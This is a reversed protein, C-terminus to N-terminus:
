MSYGKVKEKLQQLTNHQRNSGDEGERLAKFWQSHLQKESVGSVRDRRVLGRSYKAIRPDRSTLKALLAPQCLRITSIYIALSPERVMLTALRHYGDQASPLNAANM